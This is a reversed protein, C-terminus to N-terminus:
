VPPLLAHAMGGITMNKRTRGEVSYFYIQVGREEGRGRPSLLPKRMM